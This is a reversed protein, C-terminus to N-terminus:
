ALPNDHIQAAPGKLRRIVELGGKKYVTLTVLNGDPDYVAWFRDYKELIFDRTAIATSM